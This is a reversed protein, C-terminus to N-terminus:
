KLAEELDHKLRARREDTTLPEWRWLNHTMLDRAPKGTKRCYERECNAGLSSSSGPLFLVADASDIMALCIRMYAAESMGGPLRSPSLPIYGLATLDDEAREFAEWYNPVGTIPGSIFVVQNKSEGM